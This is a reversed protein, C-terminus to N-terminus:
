KQTVTFTYNYSKWKTTTYMRIYYTQKSDLTLTRNTVGKYLIDIDGDEDLVCIDFKVGSTSRSLKYKATKSPQFKMWDSDQVNAIVGKYTKKAKIKTANAYSDAYDDQVASVKV